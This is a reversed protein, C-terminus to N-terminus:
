IYIGTCNTVPLTVSKPYLLEKPSCTTDNIVASDSSCGIQINTSNSLTAIYSLCSTFTDSCASSNPCDTVEARLTGNKTMYSQSGCFKTDTCFSITQNDWWHITENCAATCNCVVKEGDCVYTQHTCNLNVASAVTYLLFIITTIQDIGGKIKQRTFSKPNCRKDNLYLIVDVITYFDLIVGTKPIQVLIQYCLVACANYLLLFM